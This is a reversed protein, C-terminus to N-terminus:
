QFVVNNKKEFSSHGAIVCLFFERKAVFNIVVHSGNKETEFYFMYLNKWLFQTSKWMLKTARVFCSKLSFFGVRILKDFNELRLVDM